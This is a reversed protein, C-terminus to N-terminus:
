LPTAFAVPSPVDRVLRQVDGAQALTTGPHLLAAAGAAVGWRLAEAPADGRDLAWVLAALFCDGAGTTGTTAPVNLAPAQWVGLRTALVAGHEGVSLAVIDAAGSTVLAHAATCWDATHELPQQLVERLERLSPKVLAVGAQLAAALPPGSTDIAVRVGLPSLARALQAYFDDPTGPPLSGSAILWRPPPRQATLADLCAQWEAAHLTPGPLVFRFEQGTTTEVVSFNERTSGAIPQLVTPVAEDALLQQVQAGTAGGTLAWAAVDAGLRHLVRAVNIGGGGAFRQVPGCRLKHTPAIHDTTTALDLAPNLTLTILASM